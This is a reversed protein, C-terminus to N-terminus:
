KNEDEDKNIHKKSKRKKNKQKKRKHAKENEELTKDSLEKKKDSLESSEINAEEKEEEPIDEELKKRLLPRTIKFGIHGFQSTWDKYIKKGEFEYDTNFPNYLMHQYVLKISYLKETKNPNRDSYYDYTFGVRLHAGGSTMNDTNRDVSKPYTFYDEFVGYYGGSRNYSFNFDYTLGIFTTFWSKKDIFDGLKYKIDVTPSISLFRHKIRKNDEVKNHEDVIMFQSFSSKRLPLIFEFGIRTSDDNLMLTPGISFNNVELRNIPFITFPKTIPINCDECGKVKSLVSINQWEIEIPHISINYQAFTPIHLYMFLLFYLAKKM